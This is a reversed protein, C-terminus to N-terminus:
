RRSRREEVAIGIPNTFTRYRHEGDSWELEIRVYGRLGPVEALVLVEGKHIVEGRALPGTGQPEQDVRGRVLPASIWRISDYGCAQVTITGAEGDIELGKLVPFPGMAEAPDRLDITRTSKRFYFHGREIADRVARESLQELILVSHSDRVRALSHMDDSGVGWIPRRPMFTSLLQDWLAEDHVERSAPVNTVEIGILCDPPHREFREEYWELGAGTWAGPTASPHNLVVMGGRDCVERIQEDEDVHRGTAGYDAFLSTMHHRYTLEASQIGVMGLENPFPAGFDTWPWTPNHPFREPRPGIPYPSAREPPLAGSRVRYNPAMNDHDTIAVVTFGSSRYADVVEKVPHHGDSQLTHVHLAAPHHRSADWDIDQYPNSVVTLVDPDHGSALHWSAGCGASFGLTLLLLPAWSRCHHKTRM